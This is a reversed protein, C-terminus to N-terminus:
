RPFKGLELQLGFRHTDIFINTDRHAHTYANAHTYKSPHLHAFVHLGLTTTSLSARWLLWLGSLGSEAGNGYFARGGGKGNKKKDSEKKREHVARKIEREREATSVSQCITIAKNYKFHTHQQIWYFQKSLFNYYNTYHVCKCIPICKRDVCTEKKNRLERGKHINIGIFYAWFLAM